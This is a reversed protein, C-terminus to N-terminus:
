FIGDLSKNKWHYQLLSYYSRSVM